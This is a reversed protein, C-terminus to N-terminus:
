CKSQMIGVAGNKPTFSILWHVRGEFFLSVRRAIIAVKTVSEDSSPDVIEEFGSPSLTEAIFGLFLSRKFFALETM